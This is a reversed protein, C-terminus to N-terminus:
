GSPSLPQEDLIAQLQTTKIVQSAYNTTYLDNGDVNEYGTASSLPEVPTM